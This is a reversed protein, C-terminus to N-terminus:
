CPMQLRLQVEAFHSCQSTESAAPEEPTETSWSVTREHFLHKRPLCEVPLHEYIRPCSDPNPSRKIQVPNPSQVDRLPLSGTKPDNGRFLLSKPGRHQEPDHRMNCDLVGAEERGVCFYKSTPFIDSQLSGFAGHQCAKKCNVRAM